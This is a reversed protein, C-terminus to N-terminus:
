AYGKVEMDERKKVEKVAGSLLREIFRSRPIDGRAEDITDTLGGDLSITFRRKM